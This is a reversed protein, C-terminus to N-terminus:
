SQERQRRRYAEALALREVVPPHRHFLWRTLTSPHEDTMHRASLRRVAAGFAEAQGTHALAFVDARREHRRSQLHRLPTAVAWVLLATMAMLPFAALDGPGRVGVHPGIWRVALHAVFLAGSLLAANLGFTRWLDHHAHHALEHAVVVEIEDDTWSRVLDRSVLVRRARGVGTVLATVSDEGVAWEDIGAVPVRVRAALQRLRGALGARSVPQVAALRALLAPGGRLVLALTASLAVGAISWWWPGVAAVSATVIFGSFLVVPLAVGTAHAQAALVDEVTGDRRRYTGDVHLALYLMAPLTALEWLLLLFGLFVTLAVITASMPLLGSAFRWALASLGRAAPTVVLVLLMAGASCWAATATRRKLRQYRTARSENM